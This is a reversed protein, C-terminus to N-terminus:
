LNLHFAAFFHYIEAGVVVETQSVVLFQYFGGFPAHVSSPVAHRRYTEDAACLVRVFLQFTGDRVEEAGLISNKIGRTEIGIAAQKLRQQCLFIGDDAICEVVGGDNVTHAQALRLTESVLIGVHCVQLLLEAFRLGRAEADDSGIADKGHVAVHARQILNVFQCVFVVRQDHHIFAVGGANHALGSVAHGFTETQAAPYLNDGTCEALSKASCHAPKSGAFLLNDVHQAM